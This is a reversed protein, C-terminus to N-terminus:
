CCGRHAALTSSDARPGNRPPAVRRFGSRGPSRANGVPPRSGSWCARHAALTSSDARPGNRPPAASRAAPRDRSRATDGDSFSRPTYLMVRMLPVVLSASALVRNDNLRTPRQRLINSYNPDAPAAPTACQTRVAKQAGSLEIRASSPEPYSKSRRQGALQLRDPEGGLYGGSATM